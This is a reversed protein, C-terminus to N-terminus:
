SKRTDPVTKIPRDKVKGYGCQPGPDSVQSGDLAVVVGRAAHWHDAGCGVENEVILQDIPLLKGGYDIVDVTKESATVTIAVNLPITNILENASNFVSISGNATYTGPGFKQVTNCIYTVNVSGPLTGGPKDIKLWGPINGNISYRVSDPTSQELQLVRLNQSCSGIEPITRTIYVGDKQAGGTTPAVCMAPKGACIEPSVCQTKESSCVGANCYARGVETGSCCVPAVDGCDANVKCTRPTQRLEERLRDVAEQLHDSGSLGSTQGGAKAQALQAELRSLQRQIAPNNGPFIGTCASSAPKVAAGSGETTLPGVRIRSTQGPETCKKEVENLTRQKENHAAEAEAVEEGHKAEARVEAEKRDKLNAQRGAELTAVCAAEKDKYFDPKHTQEVCRNYEKKVEERENFKAENFGKDAEFDAMIEHYLSTIKDSLEKCPDSTLARSSCEYYEKELEQNKTWYNNSIEDKAKALREDAAQKRQGLETAVALRAAAIDQCATNRVDIGADRSGGNFAGVAFLGAGILAVGAVGLGIKAISLNQM